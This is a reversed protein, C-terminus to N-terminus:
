GVLWKILSNKSNKSFYDKLSSKLRPYRPQHNPRKQFVRRYINNYINYNYIIYLYYTIPINYIRYICYKYFLSILSIMSIM